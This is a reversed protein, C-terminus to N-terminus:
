GTNHLSTTPRGQAASEYELVALINRLYPQSTAYPRNTRPDLYGRHSMGTPDHVRYPGGQDNFPAGGGQPGGPQGGQPGGPGQQGGQPGGPQGVQPIAPNQGGNIEGVNDMAYFHPIKLDSFIEFFINGLSAGVSGVLLYKSINQNFEILNISLLSDFGSYELLLRGIFPVHSIFYQVFYM